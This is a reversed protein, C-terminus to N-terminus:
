FLSSKSERSSLVFSFSFPRIEHFPFVKFDLLLVFDTSLLTFFGKLSEIYCQHQQTWFALHTLWLRHLMASKTHVISQLIKKLCFEALSSACECPAEAEAIDCRASVAHGEQAIEPTCVAADTSRCSDLAATPLAGECGRRWDTRPSIAGNVAGSM